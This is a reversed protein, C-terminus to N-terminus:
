LFSRLTKTLSKSYVSHEIEEFIQILDYNDTDNEFFYSGCFMHSLNLKLDYSAVQHRLQLNNLFAVREGEKNVLVPICLVSYKEVAPDCDTIRAIAYRWLEITCGDWSFPLNNKYHSELKPVIKFLTKPEIEEKEACFLNM